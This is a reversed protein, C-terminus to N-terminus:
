KTSDWFIHFISKLWCFELPFLGWRCVLKWGCLSDFLNTLWDRLVIKASPPPMSHLVESVVKTPRHCHYSPGSQFSLTGQKLPSWWCNEKQTKTMKIQVYVTNSLVNIKFFFLILNTPLSFSLPQKTERYSVLIAVWYGIAM